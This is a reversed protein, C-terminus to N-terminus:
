NDLTCASAFRELVLAVYFVLHRRLESQSMRLIRFECHYRFLGPPESSRQFSKPSGEARHHGLGEADNRLPLAISVQQSEISNNSFSKSPDM